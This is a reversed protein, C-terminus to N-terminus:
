SHGSSSRTDWASNVICPQDCCIRISSVAHGQISCKLCLLPFNPLIGMIHQKTIQFSRSSCLNTHFLPQATPEKCLHQGDGPISKFFGVQTYGQFSWAWKPMGDRGRAEKTTWLMFQLWHSKMKQTQMRANLFTCYRIEVDHSYLWSGYHNFM